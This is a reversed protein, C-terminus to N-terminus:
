VGWFLLISNTFGMEMCTRQDKRCPHCQGVHRDCIGGGDGLRVLLGHTVLIIVPITVAMWVGHYISCMKRGPFSLVKKPPFAKVTDSTRTRASGRPGGSVQLIFSQRSPPFLQAPDEGLWGCVVPLLARSLLAWILCPQVMCGQMGADGLGM